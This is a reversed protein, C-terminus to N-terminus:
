DTMNLEIPQIDIVSRSVKDDSMCDSSIDLFLFGRECIGDICPSGDLLRTLFPSSADSSTCNEFM